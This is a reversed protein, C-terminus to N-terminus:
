KMGRRRIMTKYCDEWNYKRSRGNEEKKLLRRIRQGKVTKRMGIRERIRTSGKHHGQTRDRKEMVRKMLLWRYCDMINEKEGCEEEGVAIMKYHGRKGDRIEGGRSLLGGRLWRRKNERQSGWGQEGDTIIETVLWRQSERRRIERKDSTRM